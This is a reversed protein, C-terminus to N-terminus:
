LRWDPAAVYSRNIEAIKETGCNGMALKLEGQLIELMRDVGAQGFAGLGRLFPRGIGVAKAESRSRRSFMRVEESGAMWLYRSAAALKSSWKPFLKLPRDARRLPDAETIQFWSEM